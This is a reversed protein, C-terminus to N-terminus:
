RHGICISIPRSLLKDDRPGPLIILQPRRSKFNQLEANLAEIQQEKRRYLVLSALAWSVMAVTLPIWHYRESVGNLPYVFTAISVVTLVVCTSSWFSSFLERLFKPLDSM